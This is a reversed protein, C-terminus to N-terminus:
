IALRGRTATSNAAVTHVVEISPADALGSRVSVLMLGELQSFRRSQKIAAIAPILSEESGCPMVAVSRRSALGVKTTVESRSIEGATPFPCM